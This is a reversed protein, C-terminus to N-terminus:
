AARAHMSSKGSASRCPISGNHIVQLGSLMGERRALAVDTVPHTMVDAM